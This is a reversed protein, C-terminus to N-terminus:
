SGSARERMDAERERARGGERCMAWDNEGADRCGREGKSGGRGWTSGEEAQHM